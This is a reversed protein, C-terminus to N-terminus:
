IGRCAPTQVLPLRANRREGPGRDLMSGGAPDRHRFAAERTISETNERLGPEREPKEIELRQARKWSNRSSLAMVVLTLHRGIRCRM